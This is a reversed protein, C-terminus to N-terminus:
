KVRKWAIDFVPRNDVYSRAGSNLGNEAILHRYPLKKGQMARCWERGNGKVSIRKM